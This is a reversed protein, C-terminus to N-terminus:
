GNSKEERHRLYAQVSTETPDFEGMLELEALSVLGSRCPFLRFEHVYRFGRDDQPQRVAPYSCVPCEVQGGEFDHPIPRVVRVEGIQAETKRGTHGTGTKRAIGKSM